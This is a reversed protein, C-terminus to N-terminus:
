IPMENEDSLLTLKICYVDPALDVDMKYSLQLRGEKESGDNLEFDAVVYQGHDVPEFNVKDFIEKSTILGYNVDSFRLSYVECRGIHCIYNNGFGDKRSINYNKIFEQEYAARHLITILDDDGTLLVPCALGESLELIDQLMSAEDPYENQATQKYQLIERLINLEINKIVCDSLWENENISRQLDIGEAVREKEYNAIGVQYETKVPTDPNLVVEYFQNLPFRNEKDVLPKSCAIGFSKLRARDIEALQIDEDEKKNLQEIIKTISSNFNDKFTPLNEETILTYQSDENSLKMWKKLDSIISRRDENRFANSLVYEKWDSPLQWSNGSMSLAIEVYAENMSSPSMSGWGSYVRGSVMKQDHLRGFSELVSALWGGYSDDGINRYDRHRIYLGLIDGANTVNSSSTGLSGTPHIRGGSLLAKVYKGLLEKNQSNPKILMYCATVVRIDIHANKFAIDFADHENYDRGKLVRKWSSHESDLLLLKHNVLKSRWMYESHNVDKDSFNSFWSNLMDVGWGAAEYNDFRLASIATLSTFELHNLFAPYSQALTESRESKPVIYDLWSEWAGVFSYIVDEYKDNVRLSSSNGSYSRWELLLYWLYYSGQILSQQEKDVLKERKVYIRKHLNLLDKYYSSNDPIKEVAQRTLRFYESLLESLYNRGFMGRAPLLLWNDLNGTDNKFSLAEAIETHWDILNLVSSSYERSDSDRISDDIPGVLAALVTSFGEMDTNLPKGFKYAIKILIKVLPNLKFGRFSALVMEKGKTKKRMAKLIIKADNIKKFKLIVTQIFVALNLIHYRVDVIELEQDVSVILDEFTGTAFYHSDVELTKESFNFLLKYHTPNDLFLHCIRNRIDQECTVHLSYRVLLRNRFDDNLIKFTQVFFWSTLVLNFVLWLASAACFVFYTSGDMSARLLSSMVIFISLLLGSLGAFMFGSYKQYVPFLIKKASKNQFLVSVLGVVLPYVVGIVTLQGALFLGQWDFLKEWSPIYPLIFDQAMPQWLKLNLIFLLFALLSLLVYKVYHTSWQVINFEFLNWRSKLFEPNKYLTEKIDKNVRYSLSKFLWKFLM